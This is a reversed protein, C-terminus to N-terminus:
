IVLFSFFFKATVRFRKVDEVLQLGACVSTSACIKITLSSAKVNIIQKSLLTLWTALLTGCPVGRQFYLILSEHKIWCSFARSSIMEGELNHCENSTFLAWRSFLISPPPILPSFPTVNQWFHVWRLVHRLKHKCIYSCFSMQAYRHKSHLKQM